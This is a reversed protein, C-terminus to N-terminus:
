EAAVIFPYHPQGGHLVQIEADRWQAALRDRARQARTEDVASGTFLTLVEPRSLKKAASALVDLEDDGHAVLRGDILAITEGEKVRQGDVESSRVARTIELAHATGSAAEMVRVAEATPKNGDFALLAAMGQAVNRTPVVTVEGAALLAAQEAALIVNRDNPLVIVHAARTARIAQLLEETSPNMTPGGLLPTAGASRVIDAFGEGPVVAVVALRAPSRAAASAAADRASRQDHEASMADLDEVVVDAIRGATLGIRIIEDPRLTHVHVKVATEDGVVLVCDAGFALMEERLDDASRTPANVLFQVDYAGAWSAVDGDDQASAHESTRAAAASRGPPGGAADFAITAPADETDAARGEVDALAGELLLWLGRAGADVVGAQRNTPNQERTKEVALAGREVAARLGQDADACGQVADSMAALATLITGPAPATVATFAHERAASFALALSRADVVSKGAFADKMGRLIQSLIVGSNGRAGMLAGHAAAAAVDGLDPGATRAHAIASRVTHLMNTGTDGDPVPYVNLANVEDVSRALRASAAEILRLLRTGDCQAVM